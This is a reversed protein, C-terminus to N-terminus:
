IIIYLSGQSDFNFDFLPVTHSNISSKFPQVMNGTWWSKIGFFNCVDWKIDKWIVCLLSTKLLDLENM